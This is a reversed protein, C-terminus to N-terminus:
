RKKVFGMSTKKSHFFYYLGSFFRLSTYLPLALNALLINYSIKNWQVIKIILIQSLLFFICSFIIGLFSNLFISISFNIIILVATFLNSFKLIDWTAFLFIWDGSKLWKQFLRFVFIRLQSKYISWRFTQRFDAIYNKNIETFVKSDSLFLFKYGLLLLRPAWQFDFTYKESLWQFGSKFINISYFIGHQDTEWYLDRLFAGQSRIAISSYHLTKVKESMTLHTSECLPVVRLQIISYINKRIEKELGYFANNSLYDDADIILIGKYSNYNIIYNFLENMAGVKGSFNNGTRTICIVGLNQCIPVTDDICNDAIVFIDFLLNHCTQNKISLICKEIINAENRASIAIAIRIIGNIEVKANNDPKIYIGTHIYFLVGYHVLLYLFTIYLFLTLIEHLM